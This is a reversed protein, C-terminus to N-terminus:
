WGEISGIKTMKLVLEPLQKELAKKVVAKIKAELAQEGEQEEMM